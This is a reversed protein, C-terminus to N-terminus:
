LICRREAFTDSPLATGPAVRGERFHMLHMATTARFRRDLANHTDLEQWTLAWGQTMATACSPQLQCSAM